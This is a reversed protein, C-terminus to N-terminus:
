SGRYTSYAFPSLLLPIHYHQTPDAVQFFIPVKPFFAGEGLYPGTHFTIRYLGAKLSGEALLDTVRGDQNTVGEALPEFDGGAKARALTIRVGRAPCGQATDLIHTTIPSM